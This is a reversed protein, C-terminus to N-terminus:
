RITCWMKSNLPRRRSAPLRAWLCGAPFPMSRSGSKRVPAFKASIRTVDAVTMIVMPSSLGSSVTQGAPIPKGVVIGDIPSRIVSDALQAAAMEYEAAAVEWDMRAADLEKRAIGGAVALLKLREYNKRSVERKADAQETLARYHSDDLVALVQGVHVRDNERVRVEIIRGTIKASVDVSDVAVVSGTAQVLSRVMGRKVTVTRGLPTAKANKRCYYWGTGAIAAVILMAVLVKGLGSLNRDNKIM